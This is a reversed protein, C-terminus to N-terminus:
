RVTGNACVKLLLTSLVIGAAFGAVLGLGHTGANAIEERLPYTSM